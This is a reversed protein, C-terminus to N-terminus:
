VSVLEVGDAVLILDAANDSWLIGALDDFITPAWMFTTNFRVDIRRWQKDKSWRGRNRVGLFNLTRWTLESGGEDYISENNLCGLVKQILKTAGETAHTLLSVDRGPQDLGSRLWIAVTVDGECTPADENEMECHMTDPRQDYAVFTLGAMPPEVKAATMIEDPELTLYVQPDTFVEDAVLKRKIATLLDSLDCAIRAM